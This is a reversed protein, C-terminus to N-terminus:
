RGPRALARLLALNREDWGEHPDGKPTEIVKPVDRLKRDRMVAAFGAEGIAGRGIHVHRDLHSGLGGESDNLHVARLHALGVISDFERRTRRWAAADRLDYGAVFVHCTDLCIGLREIPGSTVLLRALEEFSGGLQTGAGPMTEYLIRVRHGRTASLIGRVASSIRRLGMETGSGMHAGPHLVIGDLGLAEARTVEETLAAVSRALLAPDPSALNVLYSAHAIAGEIPSTDRAERFRAAHDPDLPPAAWQRQNRVFVQLATADIALAREVARHVGGAVSVHAGLNRM